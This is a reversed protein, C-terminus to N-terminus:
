NEDQEKKVEIRNHFIHVDGCNICKCLNEDKYSYPDKFDFPFPVLTVTYRTSGCKPCARHLKNYDRMFRKYFERDSYEM